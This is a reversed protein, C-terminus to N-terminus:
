IIEIYNQEGRCKPFLLIFCWYFVKDFFNGLYKHFFNIIKIMPHQWSGLIHNFQDATYCITCASCIGWFGDGFDVTRLSPYINLVLPPWINRRLIQRADSILCINRSIQCVESNPDPLMAVARSYVQCPLQNKGVCKTREYWHLNNKCWHLIPASLARHLQFEVEICYLAIWALSPICFLSTLIGFPRPHSGSHTTSKLWTWFM